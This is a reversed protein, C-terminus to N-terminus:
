LLLLCVNRINFDLLDIRQILDGDETSDFYNIDHHDASSRDDLHDTAHLPEYICVPRPYGKAHTPELAKFRNSM